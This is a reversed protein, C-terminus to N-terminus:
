MVLPRAAAASGANPVATELSPRVGVWTTSATSWSAAQRRGTRSLMMAGEYDGIQAM